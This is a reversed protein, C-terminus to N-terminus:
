FHNSEESSICSFQYSAGPDVELAVPQHVSTIRASRLHFFSAMRLWMSNCM